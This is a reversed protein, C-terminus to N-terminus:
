ILDFIEKISSNENKVKNLANLYIDNHIKHINKIFLELMENELGLLMMAKVFSIKSNNHNQTAIYNIENISSFPKRTFAEFASTYIENFFNIDLIHMWSNFGSPLSFGM